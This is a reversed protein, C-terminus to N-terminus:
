IAHEPHTSFYAYIDELPFLGDPRALVRCIAAMQELEAPTDVTLRIEPRLGQWRDPLQSARFSHVAERFYPTVHERCREDSALRAMARLSGANMVEPVVYSLGAICTYENQRRRHEAVIDAARRPCYFPNDATARVAIAEDPLDATAEVFRGLVDQESGRFCDTGRRRCFDAIADDARATSTAIVLQGGVARCAATLRNVVHELLPQGGLDALVKGPLRSSQMRAQVVFRM